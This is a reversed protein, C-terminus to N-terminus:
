DADSTMKPRLGGGEPREEAPPRPAFTEPKEAEGGSGCGSLAMGASLLVVAMLTRVITRLFYDGLMKPKM